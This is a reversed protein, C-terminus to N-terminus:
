LVFDLGEHEVFDAYCKITFTALPFIAPSACAAIWCPPSM